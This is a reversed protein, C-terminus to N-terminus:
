PACAFCFCLMLMADADMLMAFANVYWVFGGGMAHMRLMAFCLMANCLMAYSHVLMAYCADCLCQLLMLMGYLVGEWLPSRFRGAGENQGWSREQSSRFRGAGELRSRSRRRFRGALEFPRGAGEIMHTKRYNRSAMRPWFDLSFSLNQGRM